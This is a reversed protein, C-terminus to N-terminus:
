NFRRASRWGRRRPEACQQQPVGTEIGGLTEAGCSSSKLLPWAPNERRCLEGIPCERTLLPGGALLPNDTQKTSIEPFLLHHVVRPEFEHGGRQSRPARGVSSTAWVTLGSNVVRRKTTAIGDRAGAITSHIAVSVRNPTRVPPPSAGPSLATMRATTLADDFLPMSHTPSSSLKSPRISVSRDRTRVGRSTVPMRRLPPVIRPVTLRPSGNWCGTM